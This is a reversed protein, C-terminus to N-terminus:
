ARFHHSRTGGRSSWPSASGLRTVPSYAECPSFLFLCVCLHLCTSPVLNMFSGTNRAHTALYLMLFHLDQSSLHFMEDDLVAPAVLPLVFPGNPVKHETVVTRAGPVLAVTELKVPFNTTFMEESCTPMAVVFVCLHFLNSMLTTKKRDTQTQMPLFFPLPLYVRPRFITLTSLLPAQFTGQKTLLERAKDVIRQEPSGM